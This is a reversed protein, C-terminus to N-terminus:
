TLDTYSTATSSENNGVEVQTQTDTISPDASQVIILRASKIFVTGLARKGRVSYDTDDTLTLASSRVRTYSTSTITVESGTVQSGSSSFLAAEVSEASLGNRIVAEFYVTEGNYKAADWHVIGLSNDDPSYSTCSSLGCSFEQDIINIQQEVTKTAALANKVQPPCAPDNWIQPWGSFMWAGLIAFITVFSFLRRVLLM